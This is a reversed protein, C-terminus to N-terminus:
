GDIVEREVKALLALHTRILESFAVLTVVNICAWVLGCVSAGAMWYLYLDYNFDERRGTLPGLSSVPAARGISLEPICDQSSNSDSCSNEVDAQEIGYWASCSVFLM